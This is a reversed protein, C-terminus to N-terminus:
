AAEDGSKTKVAIIFDEADECGYVEYFGKILEMQAEPNPVEGGIDVKYFAEIGEYVEETSFGLDRMALAGAVIMGAYMRFLRIDENEPESGVKFEMIKGM